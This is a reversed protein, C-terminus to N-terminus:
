VGDDRMDRVQVVYGYASTVSFYLAVALCAYGLWMFVESHWGELWSRWPLLLIGTGVSQLFMKIKGGRAASIVKSRVMTMKLVSILVERGLMVVTVWWWLHGHWSLMIMAAAILAKDAITDAMTGFKTVLNRSRALYGDAKDTLAALAFVAFAVAARGPADSWYAWVFVPVLVLRVVTLVNAINLLPPGGASGHSSTM